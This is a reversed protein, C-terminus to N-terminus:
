RGQAEIWSETLAFFDSPGSEMEYIRGMLLNSLIPVQDPHDSFFSGFHFQRDYFLDVLKSLWMVRHDYDEVWRGLMEPGLDNAALGAVIADAALEGSRLALYVGTSYVPDIFGKADGVLVWGHGCTESAHYAYDRAILMRKDNELGHMEMRKAIAPCNELGWQFSEEATREGGFLQQRDAVLGISVQHEDLPIYWIWGDHEKTKAIVTVTQMDLSASDSKFYGWIAANKRESDLRKLGLQSAIASSQGSADVVVRCALTEQQGSSDMLVVGEARQQDDFLIRHVRTEERIVAGSQRATDLLLADFEERKVHWTESEARDDHRRFFFPKSEKGASSIFQVGVKRPFGCAAFQTDIGLRAFVSNTAPMLSEGVHDRPMKEREILCVDVGARALLTAVTAGAPGGGIVVVQHERIPNSDDPM